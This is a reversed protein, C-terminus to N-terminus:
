EARNDFHETRAHMAELDGSLVSDEKQSSAVDKDVGNLFIKKMWWFLVPLSLNSGDPKPGILSKHATRYLPRDDTAGPRTLGEQDSHTDSGAEEKGTEIDKDHIQGEGRARKSKLKESTLHGEYYNIIGIDQDAPREPVPGRKLLLPGIFIHWWKLTWDEHVVKRYLYPLFFIISLLAVGVGTGVIAGGVRGNSLKGTKSSAGKWILLV